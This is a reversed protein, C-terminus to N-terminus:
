CTSFEMIIIIYIHRVQFYVYKLWLEVNNPQNALNKNYHATKKSLEEELGGDASMEINKNEESKQFHLFQTCFKHMINVEARHNVTKSFSLTFM